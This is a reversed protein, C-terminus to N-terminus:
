LATGVPTRLGSALCVYLLAWMLGLCLLLEFHLSGVRWVQRHSRLGVSTHFFHESMTETVNVCDMVADDYKFPRMHLPLSSRNQHGKRASRQVSPQLGCLRREARYCTELQQEWFGYCGSLPVLNFDTFSLLLQLLSQALLAHLYGSM